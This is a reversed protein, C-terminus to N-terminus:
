KECPCQVGKGLMPRYALSVFVFQSFGLGFESTGLIKYTADRKLHKMSKV